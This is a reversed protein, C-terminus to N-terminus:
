TEEASSFGRRVLLFWEKINAFRDSPDNIPGVSAGQIDSSIAYSFIPHFLVLAPTQDRFRFQFDRYLAQRRAKNPTVRAQELWISTNRDDFGSYNQGTEAQSDHWFSYPDPDALQSGDLETLAADFERPILMESVLESGPLPELEVRVGINEWSSQLMQALAAYLPDDIHTLRLSLQNEGDSRVYEDSGAEVGAPIEWGLGALLEEAAAPNYPLPELNPAFAWNGPLIPGSAVMGQGGLLEGIMRERDVSMMLAQRFDKERLYAKDPHQTNLFVITTSPYRVSHLNLDPQSLVTALIEPSVHGIGDVEGDAYAQLASSATDFFRIEVRELFPEGLAYQEFATLSVGTVNRSEDLQFGEFRFPGSGIPELNFPHDILDSIDAGRLLHDPLLGVAMYDMFPAFREPLQFQVNKEDLKVVEIDEWLAKLDESAPFGEEVFKSFTYVVDDATVPEGDHWTADERITFNYLTADASVSFSEALELVPDGFSNFRILSGYLLRNIDRDVQNARDLLPNLRNFTGVVGEAYSGGHVPQVFTAEPDPTQGLLLGLVLLLGGLAIVLQWIIRRM